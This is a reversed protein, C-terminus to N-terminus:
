QENVQVGKALHQNWKWYSMSGRVLLKFIYRALIMLLIGIGVLIISTFGQIPQISGKMIFELGLALPSILGAFAGVAISVASAWCSLLLPIVILNLFFLGTYIMAKTFGNQSRSDTLETAPASFHEPNMWYVPDPPHVNREGIAEKALEAPDGLERVVDSESKGNQEAFAFHNEYDEMLEDREEPPLVSLHSYLHSLFESKNM